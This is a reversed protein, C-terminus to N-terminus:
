WIESNRMWESGYRDFDVSENSHWIRSNETRQRLSHLCHPAPPYVDKVNEIEFAYKPQIQVARWDFPGYRYTYPFRTVTIICCVGVDVALSITQKQKKKFINCFWKIKKPRFGAGWKESYLSYFEQVTAHPSSILSHKHFLVLLHYLVMILHAITLLTM